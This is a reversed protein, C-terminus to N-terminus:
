KVSIPETRTAVGTEGFAEVSFFYEENTSLARITANTDGYVQLCNYLKHPATGWLVNYGHANDSSSWNLNVWRRDSELREIQVSEASSTTKGHQKGFVRFGSLACKGNGSM